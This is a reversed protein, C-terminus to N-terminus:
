GNSNQNTVVMFENKTLKLQNEGKPIYDFLVEAINYDVQIEVYNGPIVGIQGNKEATLWGANDTSLIHLNDGKQFALQTEPDTPKFDFM